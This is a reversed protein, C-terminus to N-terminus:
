RRIRYFQASGNSARVARFSNAGQATITATVDAYGSGPTASSQLVFSGVTDVSDGTFDIQVQTGNNVLQIAKISVRTAPAPITEVKFNDILAFRLEYNGSSTSLFQDTYNIMVNTSMAAGTIDVNAILLGDVTWTVNTGQKAIVFKHWALGVAGADTVGTQVTPYATVQAEPAAMGGFGGYYANFNGRVDANTGGAYAGSAALLLNTNLWAQWDGPVGTDAFGGDGDVAFWVGELSTGQSWVPEFGSTGVGAGLFESSAAGGGSLPGNFNIWADFVMRYDGTFSITSPSISLGNVSQGGQNVYLRMGKTPSDSPASSPAEPIGNVSYDYVYDYYSDGLPYNGYWQSSTDWNDFKDSFLVTGATMEDDIVTVTATLSAGVVYGAGTQLTVTAPESGELLKDNIATLNFTGNLAGAAITATAPGNFDVGLAATGSYGLNVTVAANTAGVRSIRLTAKSGTSGELIRPQTATLNVVPIEDDVLAVTISGSGISYNAGAGLAFIFTKVNEPETDNLLQLVVNTSTAGALFTVSGAVATYDTGSVATGTVTYNVTLASGSDGERNLTFTFTGDAESVLNTPASATVVTPPATLEFSGSSRTIATFSGGPSWVELRESGNNVAYLNGAADFGIDRRHSTTSTSAVTFTPVLIRSGIDPIGNTLNMVWTKTDNRILAVKKGDPSVAVARAGAFVDTSQAAALSNSLSDWLVTLGDTDMVRLNVRDAEYVGATGAQRNNSLFFKGDPAIALDSNVDMVGPVGASRMVVTPASNYPLPTALIDYQVLRNYGGGGAYQGDITWLQLTGEALSGKAVPSGNITTHVTSDWMGNGAGLLVEESTTVDPDTRFVTGNVTSWDGIYLYNDEGVEIKNPSRGASTTSSGPDFNISGVSATDGRGLADSQDPNLIFIGDGVTTRGAATKGSAAEAVYIRGFLALNTPNKNVAVGSPSYFQAWVNTDASTKTWGPTASKSVHIEWSSHSGLAFSQKGKTLAGLDNTNGTGGGDFIVKVNDSNENLYFSVTGAVNSIGSAYPVAKATQCLALALAAGFAIGGKVYVSKM